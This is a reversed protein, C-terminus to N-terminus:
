ETLGIGQNLESTIAGYERSQAAARGIPKTAGINDTIETARNAPGLQTIGLGPQETNVEVILVQPVILATRLIRIM